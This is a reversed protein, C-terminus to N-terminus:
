RVGGAPSQKSARRREQPPRPSMPAGVTLGQVEGEQWVLKDRLIRRHRSDPTQCLRANHLEITEGAERHCKNLPARTAAANRTPQSHM